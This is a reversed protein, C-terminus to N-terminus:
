PCSGSSGGSPPKANERGLWGAVDSPNTKSADYFGSQLNSGTLYLNGEQAQLTVIYDKGAKVNSGHFVCLGFSFREVVLLSSAAISVNIFYIYANCKKGLHVLYLM